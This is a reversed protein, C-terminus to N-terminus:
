LPRARSMTETNSATPASAAPVISRASSSAMSRAAQGVTPAQAPMNVAL